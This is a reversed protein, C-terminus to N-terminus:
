RKSHLTKKESVNGIKLVTALTSRKHPNSFFNDRENIKFSKCLSPKKNDSM